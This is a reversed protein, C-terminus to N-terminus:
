ATAMGSRPEEIPARRANLLQALREAARRTCGSRSFCAVMIKM